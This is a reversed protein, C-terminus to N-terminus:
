VDFTTRLTRTNPRVPPVNEMNKTEQYDSAVVVLQHSGPTLLGTSVLIHGNRWQLPRSHGDIQAQLSSPDVGAGADRAAVDITTGTRGVLRLRPPTVDNVWFRFTFQGASSRRACDFVFDYSGPAPLVAGVVPAPSGFSGYPNINGPLGTYGLLRNEDGAQVLRPYVSVGRGQSVVAVGFNAVARRLTFRFVQEPGRLDLVLRGTASGEPYRYDSVLARGRRLDGRYIGPANLTRRPERGLQPREVRLWYPVRRADTGRSLVVFGTLDREAADPGVTLQVSITGPVTVSPTAAFAVGAEGGNQQEVTVTWPDAGGGADTVDVTRTFTGTPVLGFSLATPSTFVLPQDARVLDIRGGGERTTPVDSGTRSTKVPDGTSALASKLQAVTWDPHRQRLIAAAGAVHPSAMSTGDWIDWSGESPPVSSLINEGPATVDPKFALSIPTPGSSSFSAIVDPAEARSNTSAAVTIAEPATGPSGISGRGAMTFDNGAAIAPVVGAEAAGDIAKVVIDRSPQIEPEGLSLNIVDMGDRVAQEIAAAIEVSNGDLGFQRTPITLVKYNGLYARPAVGSLLTRGGSPLSAPTQYDGAAIGAVHTAHDSNEPDFPVTAYKSVPGPPVFARAVIVKPTTYATQGKPFGPPYSFGAPSLFPHAQDIGDDIIGIKVGEGATELAQGWLQPAGILEPSHDLLAHYAVNPWVTLGPLSALRALRSRPVVVAFGDLTVGFRWRVRAGPIATAIRAQATRQAVAVTRLYSVSAPARLNLRRRHTAAAALSRSREIADALGPRPLTV